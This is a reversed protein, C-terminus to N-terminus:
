FRIIIGAKIVFGSLDIKADRENRITGQWEPKNDIIPYWKNTFSSYLEFYKARGKWSQDAIGAQELLTSENLNGISAKRGEAEIYLGIKNSLDIEIGISGSYGINGGDINNTTRFNPYDDQVWKVKTFYYDAGGKLYLKIPSAQNPYFYFGIGVPISIIDTSSTADKYGWDIADVGSKVSIYGSRGYLGFKNTLYLFFEISFEAGIHFEEYGGESTQDFWVIYSDKFHDSHGVLHDNWDKLSSYGVGGSIKLLARHTNSRDSTDAEDKKAEVPLEKVPPGVQEETKIFPKKTPAKPKEIIEPKAEAVPRILKRILDHTYNPLEELRCEELIDSIKEIESSQVDILKIQITYANGFKGATGIIVKSAALQKGIKVACELDCVGSLQYQYEKLIEDVQTREVLKYKETYFLERQIFQTIQIAENESIDLGQLTLVALVPKEETQALLSNFLIPILILLICCKRMNTRLYRLNVFLFYRKM